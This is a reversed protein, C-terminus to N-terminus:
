AYKTEAKSFRGKWDDQEVLWKKFNACEALKGSQYLAGKLKAWSVTITADAPLKGIEALSLKAKDSCALIMYRMMTAHEAAGWDKPEQELMLLLASALETNAKFSDKAMPKKKRKVRAEHGIGAQICIAYWGAKLKAWRGKQRLILCSDM